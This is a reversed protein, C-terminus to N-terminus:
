FLLDNKASLRTGLPQAPESEVALADELLDLDSAKACVIFDPHKENTKRSNAWVTVAMRMGNPLELYGSLYGEGTAQRQSVWLAGAAEYEYGSRKRNSM